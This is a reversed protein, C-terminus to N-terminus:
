SEKRKQEEQSKKREIIADERRLTITQPKRAMTRQMTIRVEERLLLRKEVVAVEELVPIILTDGEYHITPPTTVMQNVPVHEINLREEWLPEDVVEDRTHVTKTIHVDGTKVARKQVVLEEEVLPIVKTDTDSVNGIEEKQPKM